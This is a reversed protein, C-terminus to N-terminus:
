ANDSTVYTNSAPQECADGFTVPVTQGWDISDAQVQFHLHPTSSQGTNGSWAIVHGTAVEDGVQVLVGNQKLHFYWSTFGGAHRLRVANGWFRLDNPPWPAPPPSSDTLSEQLWEVVGDRAARIETGEPMTFDCAWVQTGAHMGPGQSVLHSDGGKWPYRYAGVPNRDLELCAIRLGRALYAADETKFDLDCRRVSWWQEGIGPQWVAGYRGAETVLSSIRLGQATNARDLAAFDDLSQDWEVRQMGSGPRWVAALRGRDVALSTIRLGQNFYGADLSKLDDSSLKWHVRQAGIGPRWVAAIRGREIELSTIRLSEAYYTADLSGFEDDSLDWHVRQAGEGPRWVAAISNVGLQDFIFPSSRQIALSSIRLGAAFHAADQAKFRADTMGWRVRQVGLGPRWVTGFALASM